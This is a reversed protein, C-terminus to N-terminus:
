QARGMVAHLPKRRIDKTAYGLARGHGGHSRVWVLRGDFRVVVAEMEEGQYTVWVKWGALDLAACRECLDHDDAIRCKCAGCLGRKFDFTM